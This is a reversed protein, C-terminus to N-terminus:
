GYMRCVAYKSFASSRRNPTQVLDAMIAPLFADYKVELIMTGPENVQIMPADLDFLDTLYLGTRIDRDITIRVNGPEYVFPERIYDVLTKPRLQENYMKIYLEMLLPDEEHKMWEIDGALIAECQMKTLPTSKKHCLGNLKSKKELRIFDFDDNYYRIRFKERNNVGDIKERLAKDHLNDFYLSRIRYQGSADVNKDSKAISKLRMKLAIYDGINITHKLEHRFKLQEEKM